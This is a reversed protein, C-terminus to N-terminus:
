PLELTWPRIVMGDAPVSRWRPPRFAAEAPLFAVRATDVALGGIAVAPVARLREPLRGALAEAEGRRSLVVVRHREAAVGAMADDLNEVLWDVSAGAEVILTGLPEGASM